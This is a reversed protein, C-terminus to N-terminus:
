KALERLAARRKKMVARAKEMQQEFTPDYPTVRLGDPSDTLHLVDGKGVNMKSLADKPLIIGLSNGIRVIKTEM